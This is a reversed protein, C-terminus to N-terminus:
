PIAPAMSAANVPGLPVREVKMGARQTFDYTFGRDYTKIVIRV